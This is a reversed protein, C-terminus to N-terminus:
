TSAVLDLKTRGKSQVTCQTNLDEIYRVTITRVYWVCRNYNCVSLGINVPRVGYRLSPKQLIYGRDICNADSIVYIDSFQLYSNKKSLFANSIIFNRFSRIQANYVLRRLAENEGIRHKSSDNCLYV